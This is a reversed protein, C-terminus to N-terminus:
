PSCPIDTSRRVILNTPILSKKVAEEKGKIIALLEKV